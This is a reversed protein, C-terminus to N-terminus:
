VGLLQVFSVKSRIMATAHDLGSTHHTSSKLGIRKMVPTKISGSATAM